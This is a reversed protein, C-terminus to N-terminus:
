QGSCPELPAPTIQERAEKRRIFQQGTYCFHLGATEEHRPLLFCLGNKNILATAKATHERWAPCEACFRVNISVDYQDLMKGIPDGHKM